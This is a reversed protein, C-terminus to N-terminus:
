RMWSRNFSTRRLSWRGAAHLQSASAQQDEQPANTMMADYVEIEQRLTADSSRVLELQLQVEEKAGKVSDQKMSLWNAWTERRTAGVQMIKDQVRRCDRRWDEIAHEEELRRPRLRQKRLQLSVKEKMYKPTQIGQERMRFEEMQEEEIECLLWGLGGSGRLKRVEAEVEEIFIEQQRSTESAAKIWQVERERWQPIRKVVPIV